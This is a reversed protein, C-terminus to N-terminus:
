SFVDKFTTFTQKGVIGFVVRDFSANFRASDGVLLERWLRAVVEVKNRFVGTGFGGLVINNSGQQEFTFLIRAMRERMTSEIQKETEERAVRKGNQRRIAGANVAASTVVDVDYPPVWDGADNRLVVVDPTYILAHHYFGRKKDSRHLNYFQQATDTMLSAYLTSSRAITEEQAPLGILFGGGPSTADGFNLLGIRGSKSHSNSLTDRLLQAAQLTTMELISIECKHLSLDSSRTATSWSSSLQSDPSYYCTNNRMFDVKATIDHHIGDVTVTGREIVALTTEAVEQLRKRDGESQGKKRFSPKVKPRRAM